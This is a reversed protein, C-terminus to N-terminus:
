QVNTNEYHTNEGTGQVLTKEGPVSFGNTSSSMLADCLRKVFAEQGLCATPSINRILITIFSSSIIITIITIIIIIIASNTRPGGLMSAAASQFRSLCTTAKAYNQMLLWGWYDGVVTLSACCFFFNQVPYIEISENMQHTFSTATKNLKLHNGCHLIM